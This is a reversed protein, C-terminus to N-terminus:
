EAEYVGQGTCYLAVLRIQSETERIDMLYDVMRFWLQASDRIVAKVVLRGYDVAKEDTGVVSWRFGGVVTHVPRGYHYLGGWKRFLWVYVMLIACM